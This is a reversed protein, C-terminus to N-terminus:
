SGRMTPLTVRIVEGSAPDGGAYEVQVRQGLRLLRLGSAEFAAAGFQVRHGDDLLLVGARTEPDFDAVTGQVRAGYVAPV